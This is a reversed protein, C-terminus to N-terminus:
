RWKALHEDRKKNARMKARSVIDGKESFRRMRQEFASPSSERKYNRTKAGGSRIFYRSLYGSEHLWRGKSPSNLWQLFTDFPMSYFFEDNSGKFTAVAAELETSYGLSTLWSSSVSGIQDQKGRNLEEQTVKIDRKWYKDFADRRQNLRAVQDEKSREFEAGQGEGSFGRNYKFEKEKREELDFGRELLRRFVKAM